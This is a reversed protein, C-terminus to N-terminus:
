VQTAAKDTTPHTSPLNGPSTTSTRALEFLLSLLGSAASQESAFGLCLRLLHEINVTIVRSSHHALICTLSSGGGQLDRCVARGARGLFAAAPQEERAARKTQWHNMLRVQLCESVAVWCMTRSFFLDLQLQDCPSSKRGDKCKAETYIRRM